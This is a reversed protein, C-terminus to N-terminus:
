KNNKPLYEAEHDFFEHQMKAGIYQKFDQFGKFRFDPNIKLEENIKSQIFKVYASAVTPQDKWASDFKGTLYYDKKFLVTGDQVFKFIYKGSSNKNFTVKIM